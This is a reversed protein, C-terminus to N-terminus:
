GSRVQAHGTARQEVPRVRDDVTGAPDGVVRDQRLDGADPQDRVADHVEQDGVEGDPQGPPQAPGVGVLGAGQLGDAVTGATRQQEPRDAHPHQGQGEPLGALHQQPPVSQEVGRV